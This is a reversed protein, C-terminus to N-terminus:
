PSPQTAFSVKGLQLRQAAELVRVVAAHPTASDAYILLPQHLPLDRLAVELAQATHGDISLGNLAYLGDQSIALINSNELETASSVQPLSLDLKQIQTFTTTATLFILVVLLVDILPILNIDIPSASPTFRRKFNM